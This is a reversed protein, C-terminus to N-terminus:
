GVIEQQRHSSLQRFESPTMGYREKFSRNFPGISGFGVDLAISLIPLRSQQPDSMRQAAECLRFGNLFVSFNRYELVRNILQRVRYEPMEMQKALSGLTMSSDAYLRQTKVTARIKEAAEIDKDSPFEESLQRFPLPEVVRPSAERCISVDSSAHEWLLSLRSPYGQALYFAFIKIAFLLISGLFAFDAPSLMGGQLIRGFTMAVIYLAAVGALLLRLQRRTEDLDNERDAVLLWLLHCAFAVAILTIMAIDLSIKGVIIPMEVFLPLALAAFIAALLVFHGTHAKFGDEFLVRVSLWLFFVGPTAVLRLWAKEQADWGFEEKGLLLAYASGALITLILLTRLFGSLSRDRLFLISLGLSIGLSAGILLLHLTAFSHM